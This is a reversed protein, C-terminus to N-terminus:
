EPLERLGASVFVFGCCLAGYRVEPCVRHVLRVPDNIDPDLGAGERIPVPGILRARELDRVVLELQGNARWTTAANVDKPLPCFLSNHPREVRYRDLAIALNLSMFAYTRPSLPGAITSTGCGCAM